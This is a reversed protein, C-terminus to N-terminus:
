RLRGQREDGAADAEESAPEGDQEGAQELVDDIFRMTSGLYTSEDALAEWDLPADTRERMLDVLPRGQSLADAAAASILKKAQERDLHGALAFSIAEAMMSGRSDRVNKRMREENVVLNESLWLAKALASGTNAFMAPLTLWELQWGHTAREHEQILAQHMSSLLSANARAAAVILESQVPNSKQPMTSSGGRSSNGSERVEAVESQALLIVDQAIKGAIGSVLSLWGALEALGDRQTHWPTPPLGLALEEALAARVEPGREGLSALTGAAGGFQLILLRPRLQDLRQRQRLWPALWGAVKLGFTVPLAQQSHTRGAMVTARHLDALAALRAILRSLRSELVNLAASLRLVLATDMIDQTTAGWHLWKASDGDLRERLQRLLEIMPFGDRETAARLEAWDVALSEPEGYLGGSQLSSLGEIAQAASQPIVGLRGQVRALAVEVEILSRVFADDGFLTALQQDGLLPAFLRSDAPSFSVPPGARRFPM